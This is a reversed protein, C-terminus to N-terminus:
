CLSPPITGNKSASHFTPSNPSGSVTVYLVLNNRWVRMQACNSLRQPSSLIISVHFFSRYKWM